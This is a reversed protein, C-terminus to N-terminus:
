PIFEFWNINYLYEGKGRFLLYITRQGTVDSNINCTVTAWNQWGGTAPAQCVGISQGNTEDLRIDIEGGQGASAIRAQFTHYGGSGFDLPGYSVWEENNIWGLLYGGESCDTVGVHSSEGTYSEAEIHFPQLVTIQPVETDPCGTDTSTPKSAGEEMDPIYLTYTYPVSYMTSGFLKQRTYTVTSTAQFERLLIEYVPQSHKEAEFTFQDMQTSIASFNQQYTRSIEATLSAKLSEPLPVELGTGARAQEGLTITQQLAISSSLTRRMMGTGYCNSLVIQKIQPPSSTEQLPGQIVRIDTINSGCAGLIVVAVTSVTIWLIRKGRKM